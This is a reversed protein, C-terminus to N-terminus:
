GDGTPHVGSTLTITKGNRTVYVTLTGNTEGAAPPVYNATITCDSCDPVPGIEYKEIAAMIAKRHREWGAFSTDRWGDDGLQFPDPLPRVIPLQAFAPFDPAPFYEGTNRVPYVLPIYSDSFTKEDDQAFARPVAALLLLLLTLSLSARALASDSFRFSKM